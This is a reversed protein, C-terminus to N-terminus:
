NGCIRIVPIMENLPGVSTQFLCPRIGFDDAIYSDFSLEGDIDVRHGELRPQMTGQSCSIRTHCMIDIM